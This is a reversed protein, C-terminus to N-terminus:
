AILSTAAAAEDGARGGDDDAFAAEAVESYLVPPRQRGRLHDREVDALLLEGECALDPCMRRQRGIGGRDLGDAVEGAAAASLRHEVEDPELRGRVERRLQDAEHGVDHHDAETIARDRDADPAERVLCRGREM